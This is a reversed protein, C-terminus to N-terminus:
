NKTNENKADNPKIYLDSNLLNFKVPVWLEKITLVLPPTEINHPSIFPDSKFLNPVLFTDIHEATSITIPKNIVAYAVVKM